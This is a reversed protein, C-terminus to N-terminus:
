LFVEVVVIENAVIAVVYNAKKESKLILLALASIMRAKHIQIAVKTVKTHVINGLVNQHCLDTLAAAFDFYHYICNGYSFIHEFSKM